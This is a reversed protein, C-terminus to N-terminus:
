RCIVAVTLVSLRSVAVSHRAWAVKASGNRPMPAGAPCSTVVCRLATIVHPSLASIVASIALHCREFLAFARRIHLNRTPMLVCDQGSCLFPVKLLAEALMRELDKIKREAQIIQGSTQEQKLELDHIENDKREM